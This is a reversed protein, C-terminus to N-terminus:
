LGHVHRLLHGHQRRRHLPRLARGGHRPKRHARRAHARAPEAASNEPFGVQYNCSAVWRLHEITRDATRRTLLQDYLTGLAHDLEGATFPDPLTELIYAADEGAEGLESLARQFLRRDFTAEFPRGVVLHNASEDIRVQGDRDAVGTRFEISSLHGEGVVRLSLVVRAEGPTLGRQDPHLVISPNFLAAGEISFEHTFYAGVLLRTAEPLDSSAGM